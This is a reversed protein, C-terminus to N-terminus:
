VFNEDNFFVSCPYKSIIANAQKRLIPLAIEVQSRLADDFTICVDSEELKGVLAREYWELAPLIRGPSYSLIIKELREATIAGLSDTHRHECFHHFMVGHPEM